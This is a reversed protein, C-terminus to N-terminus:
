HGLETAVQEFSDGKKDTFRIKVPLHGHELAIWIETMSDTIARLHLTRFRGAPVEIEEEGLADLAYRQYKRATAVGLTAGEALRGLYALQYNLSLIDQAGPALRHVRGDRLMRLEGAAWDFDAGEETERGDRVSRFREPQLGGAVLRGSSELVVRAPRLWAALGSTETTATLRYSGDDAFEWRHEARGVQLGLSAKIVAFRITGSAPLAPKVPEPPAPESLAEVIPEPVESLPEPMEAAPPPAEPTAAAAPAAVARPKPRPKATVPPKAPAISVPAAPPPQLEAQLVPTEPEEGFLEVETGFLAAGHILLSGALAVLLVVPM